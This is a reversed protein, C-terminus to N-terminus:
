APLRRCRWAPPPERRARAPRADRGGSRALQLRAPACQAARRPARVLTLAMFLGVPLIKTAYFRPTVSKKAEM